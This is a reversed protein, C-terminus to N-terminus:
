GTRRSEETRKADSSRSFYYAALALAGILVPGRKGLLRMTGSLALPGGAALGSILASRQLAAQQLDHEQRREQASTYAAAVGGVVLFVVALIANAWLWGFYDALLILMAALAFGAAIVLAVGIIARGAAKTLVANINLKVHQVLSQFM